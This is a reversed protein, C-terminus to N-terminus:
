QGAYKSVCYWASAAQPIYVFHDCVAIQAETLGHGENGM